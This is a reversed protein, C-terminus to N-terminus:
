PYVEVGEPRPGHVALLNAYADQGNYSGPHAGPNLTGTIPGTMWPQGDVQPILWGAQAHQADPGGSGLGQTLSQV